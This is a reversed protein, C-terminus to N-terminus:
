KVFIPCMAIMKDKVAVNPGGHFSILDYSVVTIGTESSCSKLQVSEEAGDNLLQEDSIEFLSKIQPCVDELDGQFCITTWKDEKALCPTEEDDSSCVIEDSSYAFVSDEVRYSAELKNNFIDYLQASKVESQVPSEVPTQLKGTAAFGLSSCALITACIASSIQKM